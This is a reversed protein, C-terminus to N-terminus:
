PLVKGSAPATIAVLAAPQAPPLGWAVAAGDGFGDGNTDADMPDSQHQFEALNTLGDEDADAGATAATSGFHAIEWQDDMGDGDDDVERITITVQAPSGPCAGSVAELSLVITEAPDWVTDTLITLPITAVTQGTPIVIEAGCTTTLDAGLTATGAFSVAVIVPVSAAQSLQLHCTVTGAAETV